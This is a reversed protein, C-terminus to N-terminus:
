WDRKAFFNQWLYTYGINLFALIYGRQDKRLQIVKYSWFCFRFSGLLPCVMLKRAFYMAPPIASMAEAEGFNSKKYQRIQLIKYALLL